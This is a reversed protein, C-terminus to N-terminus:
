GHSRYGSHYSRAHRVPAQYAEGRMQYSPGHTTPNDYVGYIPCNDLRPFDSCAGTAFAPTAFTLLSVTGLVLITNRM